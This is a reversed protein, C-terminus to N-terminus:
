VWQEADDGARIKLGRERAQEEIEKLPANMREEHQMPAVSHAERMYLNYLDTPLMAAVMENVRICGQLLGEETSGANEYGPVDRAHMLVYGLALRRQIPDQPNTTTLWCVKYGPPTPLDPLHQQHFAKRFLELRESNSTEWQETAPRDSLARDSHNVGPSKKLRDDHM